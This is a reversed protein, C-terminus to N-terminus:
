EGNIISAIPRFYNSLALFGMRRANYRIFVNGDSSRYFRTFKYRFVGGGYFRIEFIRGRGSGMEFRSLPVPHETQAGGDKDQWDGPARDLPGSEGTRSIFLM